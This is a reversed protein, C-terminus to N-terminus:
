NTKSPAVAVKNIVSKVGKIQKALPEIKGVQEKNAVTGTITVAGNKSNITLQSAPLNAELKGSVETQLDKDSRSTDGGTMNNRQETARIDSEIQAKRVDSTADNKTNQASKTEPATPSDKVSGPADSSTKASNDCGVAGLVIISLLCLPIFKKM